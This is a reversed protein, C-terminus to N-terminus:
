DALGDDGDEVRLPFWVWKATRISLSLTEIYEGDIHLM